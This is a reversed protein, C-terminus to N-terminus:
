NKVPVFDKGFSRRWLLEVVRVRGVGREYPGDGLSEKPSHTGFWVEGLVWEDGSDTPGKSRRM